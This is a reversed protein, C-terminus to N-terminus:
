LESKLKNKRYRVFVVSMIVVNCIWLLCWSVTYCFFISGFTKFYPFIFSMWIIRLVLIASVSNLTTLFSYGFAQLVGSFVSNMAGIFYISTLYKVRVLAYNIADADDGVFFGLLFKINLCMIVTFAFTLLTSVALCIGVSKKVRDPKKAGLNQGVFTLAAINFSGTISNLLGELNSAATSGAIASPGFSNIASAIMVNTIPFIAHYFCIPLGYKVILGFIKPQWKLHRIDLKCCDNVKCLRIVVLVAGLVQSALTAIAVAAVKQELVMCLIINLVVNLVGSAVMYILPRNSDGSTRLIGAGYNYVLIAPSALFYIRLYTMAGEFCEPPCNTLELFKESLVLGLVAAVIGIFVASILSTSVTGNAKKDDKAGIYRALIVNTGGAFGIFANIVLHVIPSTAGVSAVAINDAAYRLVVIDVANFLTQVLTSIILPISYIIILPLLKGETADINKIHFTKERRLM